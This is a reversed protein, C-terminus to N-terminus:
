WYGGRSRGGQGGYGGYGGYGGGYGGYEYDGYGWADYADYGGYGRNYGGYGGRPSYGIADQHPRKNQAGRGRNGAGGRKGGRGGRRGQGMLSSLGDIKQQLVRMKKESLYDTRIYHMAQRRLAFIRNKKDLPLQNFNGTFNYLKENTMSRIIQDVPPLPELKQAKYEQDHLTIEIELAATADEESSFCVYAYRKTKKKREKKDNNTAGNEEPEKKETSEEIKTETQETTIEKEKKESETDDEVKVDPKYSPIYVLMAGPFLQSLEEETVDDSLDPIAIANDSKYHAESAHEKISNLDDYKIPEKHTGQLCHKITIGEKYIKEMKTVADAAEDESSFVMQLYGKFDGTEAIRCYGMQITNTSRLLTMLPKKNLDKIDVPGVVVSRSLLYRNMDSKFEHVAPLFFVAAKMSNKKGKTNKDTAEVANEDLEQTADEADMAESETIEEVETKINEDDAM